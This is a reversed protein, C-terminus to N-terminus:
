PAQGALFALLRHNVEDPAESQIWHGAGPLTQLQLDHVWDDLGQTLEVGLAPDEEGWLILTPRHVDPAAGTLPYRYAARYWHIMATMAGPQALAAALIELDRDTFAPQSTGFTRFVFRATAGPALGLLADPLWPIQFLAVYWSRLQQSRDHQLARAFARPHPANLIALREVIGPNDMALRWAVVGGWDHGVIAARDRGLAHVLSAVDAILLEIRYSAIGSPKESLNYGRQDPVAVRYGARALAPIQHHWGYWCDPFGHLLVVLPGDEPGALLTHLQVGAGPLLTREAPVDLSNVTHQALDGARRALALRRRQQWALAATTATAAAFGLIFARRRDDNMFEEEEPM